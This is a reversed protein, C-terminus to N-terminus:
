SAEGTRRLRVDSEAPRAPLLVPTKNTLSRPGYVLTIAVTVTWTLVVEVLSHSGPYLATLSVALSAHFLMALLMSGAASNVVWTMLVTQPVILLVSYLVSEGYAFFLPLQWLGWAMGLVLSSTLASWRAQLAPLAFGRWGFEELLPSSAMLGLTMVPFVLVVGAIGIDAVMEGLPSSPSVRFGPDILWRVLMSLLTIAPVLLSALLYWAPHVRWLRYRSGIWAILDRRGSAKLLVYACLSPTVAGITQLALLGLPLTTLTRASSGRFMLAAPVWVAWGSVITLAFFAIVLRGGVGPRARRVAVPKDADM